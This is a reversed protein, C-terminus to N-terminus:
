ETLVQVAVAEFQGPKRGSPQVEYRVRQGQRLEDIHDSCKTVHVFVDVGGGDPTIFGYGKDANFYIVTGTGTPMRKKKSLLQRGRLRRRRIPQSLAMADINSGSSKSALPQYSSQVESM